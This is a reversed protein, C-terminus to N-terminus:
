KSKTEVFLWKGVGDSIAIEHNMAKAQEGAREAGYKTIMEIIEKKGWDAGILMGATNRFTHVTDGDPLMGLAIDTEIKTRVGWM